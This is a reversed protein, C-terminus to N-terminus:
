RERFASTTLVILELFVNRVLSRGVIARISESTKCPVTSKEVIIKDKTAVRAITRTATEVFGIDAAAGKGVGTAKTPTNVCVFILDAEEIAPEIDTSFFLRQNQKLGNAFGVHDYDALGDAIDEPESPVGDRAAKVIEFLGPEYIPLSESQWARIRSENIDVVTVEM